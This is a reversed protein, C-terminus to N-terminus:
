CDDCVEIAYWNVAQSYEDDLEFTAFMDYKGSPLGEASVNMYDWNQYYTEYTLEPQIGTWNGTSNEYVTWIVTLDRPADDCSLDADWHFTITTNYYEFYADYMEPECDQTGNDPEDDPDDDEPEDSGDRCNKYGDNVLSAEIVSGDGCTFDDGMEWDDDTVWEDDGQGYPTFDLIGVAELGPMLLAVISALTIMLSRIEQARENVTEIISEVEAESLGNM